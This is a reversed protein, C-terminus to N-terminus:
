TKVADKKKEMTKFSWTGMKTKIEPCVTKTRTSILLWQLNWFKYSFLLEVDVFSIVSCCLRRFRVDDTLLCVIVKQEFRLCTKNTDWFEWSGKLTRGSVQLSRCELEGASTTWWMGSKYVLTTLFTREDWVLSFNRFWCNVHIIQIHIYDIGM